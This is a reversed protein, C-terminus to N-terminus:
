VNVPQVELVGVGPKGDVGLDNPKPFLELRHKGAFFFHQRSERPSLDGLNQVLKQKIVQSLPDRFGSASFISSKPFGCKPFDNSLDQSMQVWYLVLEAWSKPTEWRERTRELMWSNPEWRRIAMLCNLRETCSATPLGFLRAEDGSWETPGYFNRWQCRNSHFCGTCGHLMRLGLDHLMWAVSCAFSSVKKPIKKQMNMLRIVQSKPYRSFPGLFISSM